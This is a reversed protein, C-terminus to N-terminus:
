AALWEYYYHLGGVEPATCGKWLDRDPRFVSCGTVGVLPALAVVLSYLSKANRLILLQDTPEVYAGEREGTLALLIRQKPLLTM